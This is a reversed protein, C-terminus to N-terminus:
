CFEKLVKKEISFFVASKLKNVNEIKREKENKEGNIKLRISIMRLWHEVGLVAQHDIHHPQTLSLSSSFHFQIQHTFAAFFCILADHWLRLFNFEFCNSFSFAKLLVKLSLSEDGLLAINGWTSDGCGGLIDGADAPDERIASQVDDDNADVQLNRRITQISKM